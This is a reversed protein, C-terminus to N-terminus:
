QKYTTLQEGKGHLLSERNRVVVPAGNGYQIKLVKTCLWNANWSLYDGNLINYVPQSENDSPVSM